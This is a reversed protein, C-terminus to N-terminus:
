IDTTGWSKHQCEHFNQFELFCNLILYDKIAKCLLYFPLPHLCTLCELRKEDLLCKTPFSCDQPLFSQEKGLVSCRNSITAGFQFNALHLIWQRVLYGGWLCKRKYNIQKIISRGWSQLQLFAPTLHQPM